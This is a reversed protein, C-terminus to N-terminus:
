GPSTTARGRSGRCKERGPDSINEISINKDFREAHMIDCFQGSKCSTSIDQDPNSLICGFTENYQGYKPNFCHCLARKIMHDRDNSLSALESRVIFSVKQINQSLFKNQFIPFVERSDSLENSPKLLRSTQSHRPSTIQGATLSCSLPPPVSQLDCM